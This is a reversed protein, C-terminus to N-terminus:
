CFHPSQPIDRLSNLTSRHRKSQLALFVRHLATEACLRAGDKPARTTLSRNQTAQLIEGRSMLHRHRSTMTM